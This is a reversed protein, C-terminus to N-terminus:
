LARNLASIQLNPHQERIQTLADNDGTFQGIVLSELSGIEALSRLDDAGVQRYVKANRLAPLSKLQDVESSKLPPMAVRVNGGDGIQVTHVDHFFDIGLFRTLLRPASSFTSNDVQFDYFVIAGNRRMEEVLRQQTSARQSGVAIWVSLAAVIVLTAGISVGFM